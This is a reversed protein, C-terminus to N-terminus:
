GADTSEILRLNQYADHRKGSGHETVKGDKVGPFARRVEKGFETNALPQRGNEACWLRYRQYVVAKPARNEVQIQCSEQLFLRAPNNEVPIPRACVQSTTFNGTRRLRDLGALAWNLIGPLEGADTWWAPDDMGTLREAEPICVRLPFLLMRRWLRHASTFPLNNLIAAYVKNL